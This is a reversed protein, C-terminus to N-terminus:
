YQLWLRNALRRCAREAETLGARACEEALKTLDEPHLFHQPNFAIEKFEKEQM